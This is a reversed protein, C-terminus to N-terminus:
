STTAKTTATTTTTSAAPSLLSDGPLKNLLMELEAEEAMEFDGDSASAQRSSLWRLFLAVPISCCVIAAGYSILASVIIGYHAYLLAFTIAFANVSLAGVMMPGAAGAGVAEGQSIWM